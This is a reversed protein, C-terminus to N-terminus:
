ANLKTCKFKDKWLTLHVRVGSIWLVLQRWVCHLEAALQAAAGSSHGLDDAAFVPCDLGGNLLSDIGDVLIGGGVGLTDLLPGDKVSVEGDSSSLKTLSPKAEEEEEEENRKHANLVLFRVSHSIQVWCARGHLQFPRHHQLHVFLLNLVKVFLHDSRGGGVVRQRGFSATSGRSEVVVCIDHHLDM